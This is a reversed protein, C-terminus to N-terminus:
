WTPTFSETYTQRISVAQQQTLAEDYIRMHQIYGNFWKSSGTRHSYGITNENGGIAARIYSGTLAQSGNV